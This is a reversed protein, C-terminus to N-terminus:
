PFIIKLKDGPKLNNQKVFGAKVELVYMIPEKPSFAEPFTEPSINETIDVITFNASIWIFDLSFMMDKMWFKYVGPRNFKFLMGEQFSMDPINSLGKIQEEPTDALHVKIVKNNPLIIKTDFVLRNTPSKTSTKNNYFLFETILFLTLVVVFSALVKQM